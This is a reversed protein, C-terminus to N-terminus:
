SSETGTEVGNYGLLSCSVDSIVVSPVSNAVEATPPVVADNNGILV